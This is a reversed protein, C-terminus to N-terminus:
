PSLTSSSLQIPSEQLERPPPIAACNILYEV